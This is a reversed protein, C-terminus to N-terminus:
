ANKVSGSFYRQKLWEKRSSSLFYWTCVRSDEDHFIYPISPALLYVSIASLLTQDTETLSLSAALYRTHVALPSFFFTKLSTLSPSTESVVECLCLEVFKSASIELACMTVSFSVYTFYISFYLFKFNVEQM